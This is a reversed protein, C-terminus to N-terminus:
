CALVLHPQPNRLFAESGHPSAIFLKRRSALCHGDASTVSRSGFTSLTIGYVVGSWGQRGHCGCEVASRGWVFFM